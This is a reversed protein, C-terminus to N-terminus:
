QEKGKEIEELKGIQGPTLIKELDERPPMGGEAYVKRLGAEQDPTLALIRAYQRIKREREERADDHTMQPFPRRQGEDINGEPAPVSVAAPPLRPGAPAVRGYFAAITVGMGILFLKPFNDM